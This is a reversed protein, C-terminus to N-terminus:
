IMPRPFFDLSSLFSYSIYFVLFNLLVHNLVNFFQVIKTMLTIQCDISHHSVGEDCM